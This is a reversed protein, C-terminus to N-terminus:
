ALDKLLALNVPKRPAQPFVDPM